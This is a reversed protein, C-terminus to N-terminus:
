SMITHVHAFYIIKLTQTPLSHKVYRLAYCASSMQKSLQIIHEKWTLTDDIILGLFKTETANTIYKQNHHIQINPKYHKKSKFELYHTKNFNLNLLNSYLWTNIEKFMMNSQLSFDDRNTGTIIVSTDDAFLVTNNDKNILMPLDNIYILFLLPGAISGQPVGCSLRVWKSSNINYDTKNLTVKQYRNTLYSEILTKFKGHIGYFQLKDLLIKHKVCDFAKQLECFMGGVIQKNNVARLISNILCFAAQESSHQTRFGFQEHALIGNNELHNYLRNFILKEFVKSFATLISIPRYNSIDQKNGKKLISKVVAYKLRDPFIGLSLAANCIHTLLSIIFLANLKIIHTSIEDYGYSSKSEITKILKEIEYISAYKWTLELFPNSYYNYLYHIPNTTINKNKDAVSSFYDNFM